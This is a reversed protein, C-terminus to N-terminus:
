SRELFCRAMFVEWFFVGARLGFAASALAVCGDLLSVRNTRHKGLKKSAGMSAGLDEWTVLFILDGHSSSGLINAGPAAGLVVLFHESYCASM